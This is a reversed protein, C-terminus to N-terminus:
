ASLGLSKAQSISDKRTLLIFKCNNKVLKIIDEEFSFSLHNEVGYKVEYFKHHINTTQSLKSIMNHLGSEM